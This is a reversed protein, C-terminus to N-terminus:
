RVRTISPPAASSARGPLRGTPTSGRCWRTTAAWPCSRAAGSTNATSTYTMRFSRRCWTSPTTTARSSRPRSSSRWASTRRCSRPAGYADIRPTWVTCSSATRGSPSSTCVKATLWAWSTAPRGWSSRATSRFSTSAPRTTSSTKALGPSRRSRRRRSRTGTPRCACSERPRVAPRRRRRARRLRQARREPSHRLEFGEFAGPLRDATGSAGDARVTRAGGHQRAPFSQLARRPPAVGERASRCRAGHDDHSLVGPRQPCRDRGALGTVTGLDISDLEGPSNGKGVTMGCGVLLLVAWSLKVATCRVLARTVTLSCGSIVEGSARKSPQPRPPACAAAIPLGRM